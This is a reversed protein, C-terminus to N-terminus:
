ELFNPIGQARLLIRNIELAVPTTSIFDFVDMSMQLGDENYELTFPLGEDHKYDEYDPKFHKKFRDHEIGGKILISTEDGELRYGEGLIEALYHTSVVKFEQDDIVENPRNLMRSLRRDRYTSITSKGGHITFIGKELIPMETLHDSIVFEVPTTRSVSLLLHDRDGYRIGRDPFLLYLDIGGYIKDEYQPLNHVQELPLTEVRVQGYTLMRIFTTYADRINRCSHSETTRIELNYVLYTAELANLYFERWSFFLKRFRLLGRFRDEFRQQWFYENASANLRTSVQILRCLDIDDLKHLILGLVDNCLITDM